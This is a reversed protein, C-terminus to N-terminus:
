LLQTMHIRFPTHQPMRRKQHNRSTNRCRCTYTGDRVSASLMKLRDLHHPESIKIYGSEMIDSMTSNCINMTSRSRLHSGRTRYEEGGCSLGDCFVESTMQSLRVYIPRHRFTFPCSDDILCPLTEVVEYNQIVKELLFWTCGAPFSYFFPCRGKRM